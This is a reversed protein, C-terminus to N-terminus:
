FLRCIIPLLFATLVGNLGMGLGAFAGAVENIQLARATGIGHSAIGMTLGVVRPDGVRVLRAVIPGLVAGTIGTMIVLVITLTQLGGIQESIGVAIGATVSKPALSLITRPSAGLAWALSVASLIGVPLGVALAVTILRASSRIVARQRFLPVALLVVAPGLMFHITDAGRLYTEYPIHTAELGISVLVIALLTPNLLPHNGGLRSIRTAALFAFVTAGTELVPKEALGTWAMDALIQSLTQM